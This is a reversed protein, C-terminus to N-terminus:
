ARRRGTMWERLKAMPMPAAFLYGQVFDCGQARVFDLDDEGEVGEAVLKLGLNHGLGIVSRCITASESDHAVGIVFSKDIKLKQVPFRKLYALSSYGTGFDDVTLGIGLTRLRQMVDIAQDHDHMLVTETLELEVQAADVGFEAVARQVGDALGPDRFQALSLNVAMTVPAHGARQWAAADELAQRLVWQGIPLILGSAECLPVFHEPSLLGRSPHQWRILAELGTLEGSRADLVPQYHLVFQQEGLALGLEDLMAKRELLEEHLRETYFRFTNRGEGKAHYMALDAKRLLQDADRDDNPCLTVGVSAGVQMRHGAIVFPEGLAAILAGAAQAAIGPDDIDPLLVAFEDGGLRAVTAGASVTAMLRLAVARLLADGVAHGLSDNALKFHDLDLFMVALMSDNRLSHEVAQQLRDNFLTRNPLETLTDHTALLRVQEEAQRRETVDRVQVNYLGGHPGRWYSVSVEAPFESGDRRHASLELVRTAARSGASANENDGDVRPDWPLLRDFGAGLVERERWGFMQEGAQNLSHVQGRDDVQILADHALRTVARFQEASARLEAESHELQEAYTNFRAALLGLEDRTPIDIRHESGSPVSGTLQGAMRRIPMVLARRVLWGAVAMVCIIALSMTGAVQRMVSQVAERVLRAPQVVVLQWRAAPFRLSTALVPEGLFADDELMTQRVEGVDGQDARLQVAIRRAEAADITPSAADIASAMPAIAIDEPLDQGQKLFAALAAFRPHSSGLDDVSASRQTHAQTGSRAGPPLTIFVGNRDIAFAYGHLAVGREALFSQLGSLRLDITSVGIFRGDSRMPVTCTVMPEGTYPDQYSRSWYCRGERQHRAPVYWEEQHYGPGDPANYDDYYRLNGSADRGWFFSRRTVGPSFEGPEPWLGGGAILSARQEMDILHPLLDRWLVPDRPLREGANALTAALGEALALQQGVEGALRQTASTALEREREMLLAYGHAYFVLLVAALMMALGLLVGVLVKAQLSRRFPVETREHETM